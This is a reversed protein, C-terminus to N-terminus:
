CFCMESFFFWYGMLAVMVLLVYVCKLYFDQSLLETQFYSMGKHYAKIVYSYKPLNTCVHFLFVATIMEPLFSIGHTSRLIKGKVLATLVVACLFLVWVLSLHSDYGQFFNTAHSSNFAPTVYRVRGLVGYLCLLPALFFVVSWYM